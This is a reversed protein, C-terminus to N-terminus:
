TGTECVLYTYTGPGREGTHDTYFGTTPGTAIVVGNGYVDVNTSAGSWSLDM